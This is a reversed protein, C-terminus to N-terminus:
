YAGNGPSSSPSSGPEDEKSILEWFEEWFDKFNKGYLDFGYRVDDKDLTRFEIMDLTLDIESFQGDRFFSMTTANYNTTMGRLFCPLMQAGVTKKGYRMSIGFKNPFKFGVPLNQGGVRVDISEPYLETRFWKIISEIEKAEAMSRPMFKFSFTHERPRVSKFIARINPNVVTGAVSSVVAGARQGTPAKQVAAVAALRAINPDSINNLISGIAGGGILSEVGAGVVSNEGRTLGQRAAEGGIGFAFTNDFEVGDQVTQAPPLYLQVTDGRFTQGPTFKAGVVDGIDKFYDFWSKDDGDAGAQTGGESAASQSREFAATDLTPPVEIIQTFYIVGKYDDQAELPFRYKPM